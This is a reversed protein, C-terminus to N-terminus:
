TLLGKCTRGYCPTLLGELNGGQDRWDKGAKDASMEARRAVRKSM